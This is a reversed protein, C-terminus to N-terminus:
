EYLDEIEVWTKNQLNFVDDAEHTRIYFQIRPPRNTAKDFCKSFFPIILEFMIHDLRDIQNIYDDNPDIFQDLKIRIQVEDLLTQIRSYNIEEGDSMPTISIGYIGYEGSHVEFLVTDTEPPFQYSLVKKINQILSYEYAYVAKKVDSRNIM